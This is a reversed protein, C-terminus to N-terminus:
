LLEQDSKVVKNVYVMVVKSALSAMRLPTQYAFELRLVRKRANTLIWCQLILQVNNRAKKTCTSDIM